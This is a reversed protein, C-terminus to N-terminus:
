GSLSPCCRPLGVLGDYLTFFAHHLVPRILSSYLSRSATSTRPVAQTFILTHQVLRLINLGDKYDALSPMVLMGDGVTPYGPGGWRSKAPLDLLYDFATVVWRYTGTDQAAVALNLAFLYHRPVHEQTHFM